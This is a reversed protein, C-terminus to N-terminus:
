QAQLNLQKCWYQFIHAATSPTWHINDETTQFLEHSLEFLFPFYKAIANNISNLNEQQKQTINTSFNIIPFYVDMNPFTSQAKKYM